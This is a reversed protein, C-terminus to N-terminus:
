IKYIAQFFKQFVNKEPSRRFIKKSSRKKKKKLDSASTNKTSPRSRSCEQGQGQAQTRSEVDSKLSYGVKRVWRLLPEIILNLLVITQIMINREYNTIADDFM